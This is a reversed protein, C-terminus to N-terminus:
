RGKLRELLKEKKLDLARRQIDAFDRKRAACSTDEYAPFTCVSVEYLPEVREISWRVTGDPMVESRESGIDFGFSCQDVDGRSVRAYLNMADADARNVRISGFLGREDERLTLTGAKTRGLVLGSDHNILARVDQGAIGSFAGPLIVEEAGDFIHYPSNFVAFYGEIYLEQGSDDERVSFPQAISRTQRVRRENTREM